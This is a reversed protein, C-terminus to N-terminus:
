RSPRWASCLRGTPLFGTRWPTSQENFIQHFNQRSAGTEGYMKSAHPRQGQFPEGAKLYM